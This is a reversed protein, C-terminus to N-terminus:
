PENPSFNPKWHESNANDTRGVPSRTNRWSDFKCVYITSGVRYLSGVNHLRLGGNRVRFLLSQPASVAVEQRRSGILASISTNTTLLSVSRGNVSVVCLGVGFSVYM